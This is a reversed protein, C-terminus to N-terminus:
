ELAVGEIVGHLRRLEQQLYAEPATRAEFWLGEDNIQEVVVAAVRSLRRTLGPVLERAANWGQRAATLDFRAWHKPPLSLVWAEFELDRATNYDPEAMRKM